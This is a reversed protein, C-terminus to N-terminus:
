YGKWHDIDDHDIFYKGMLMVTVVIIVTIVAGMM